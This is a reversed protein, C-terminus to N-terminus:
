FIPCLRRQVPLEVWNCIQMYGTGLLGIYDRPYCCPYFRGSPGMFCYRDVMDVMDWLELFLLHSKYLMILISFELVYPFGDFGCGAKKM